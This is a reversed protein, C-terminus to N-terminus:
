PPFDSPCHTDKPPMVLTTLYTEIYQRACTNRLYQNHGVGDQQLLVSGKLQRHIAAADAQPTTVDRKATVLLIPPADPASVRRQPNTTQIPSGLCTLIWFWHEQMHTHPYMAELARRYADLEHFNRISFKWDQCIFDHFGNEYVEDDAMFRSAALPVGTELSSLRNAFALWRSASAAAVAFGLESLLWGEDLPEGTAPDILTGAEAKAYLEDWLAAVDRGHLKCEQTRGCWAVFEYFAGEFEETKTKLFRFASTVSHNVISDLAMARVREPFEEAYNVGIQSGYSAGYYSIKEEGLAARIADMDRVTSPTDVHDYLPGTRARCNRALRANYALWEQYERESRPFSDPMPLIVSADCVIPHSRAVGRPDWSVLDFRKRLISTDPIRHGTIFFNIGSSGPGGPNLLLVGIRNEPELAPLRGIALDFKEGEPHAWDVPVAITACEENSTATCPVWAIESSPRQAGLSLVGTHDPRGADSCATSTFLGIGLLGALELRFEM